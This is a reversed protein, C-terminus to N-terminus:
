ELSLEDHGDFGALDSLIVREGPQLGETVEAERISTAGIRASIRRARSGQPDLRFLSLAAGPQAYVPREMKVVDELRRM